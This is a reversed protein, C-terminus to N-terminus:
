DFNQLVKRNPMGILGKYFTIFVIETSQFVGYIPDSVSCDYSVEETYGFPVKRISDKNIEMACLDPNAEQMEAVRNDIINSAEEATLWPCWALLILGLIILYKIM